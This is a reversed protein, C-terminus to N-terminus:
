AAGARIWVGFGAGDRAKRWAMRVGAPTTIGGVTGFVSGPWRVTVLLYRGPALGTTAGTRVETSHALVVIEGGDGTTDIAERVVGAVLLRWTTEPTDLRPPLDPWLRRRLRLNGPLGRECEDLVENIVERPGRAVTTPSVGGPEMENVQGPKRESSTKM